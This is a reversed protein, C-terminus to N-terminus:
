PLPASTQPGLGTQIPLPDIIPQNDLSTAPGAGTVKEPLPAPEVAKPAELLFKPTTAPAAAPKAPLGPAEPLDTPALPRTASLRPGGKLETAPAKEAGFLLLPSILAVCVILLLSLLIKRM